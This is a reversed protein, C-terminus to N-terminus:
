LSSAMIPYHLTCNLGRQPTIRAATLM